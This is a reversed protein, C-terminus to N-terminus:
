GENLGLRGAALKTDAFLERLLYGDMGLSRTRSTVVRGKPCHYRLAM